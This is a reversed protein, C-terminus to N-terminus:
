KNLIGKKFSSSLENTSKKLIMKVIKESWLEASEM